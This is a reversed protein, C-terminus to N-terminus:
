RNVSGFVFQYTTGEETSRCEYRGDLQQVLSDILELGFSHQNEPVKWNGNDSYNLLMENDQGHELTVTIVPLATDQFAHKM